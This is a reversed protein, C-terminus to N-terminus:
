YYKKFYFQLFFLFYMLYLNFGLINGIYNQECDYYFYLTYSKMTFCIIHQIIQFLTIYHIYNYLFCKPYAFYYYMPIHILCNLGMPIFSYPSIVQNINNYTLFATSMHHSYQLWTIKKRSLYLFLTDLWELYKSWLFLNVSYYAIKNNNYSSCILNNISSFKSEQYTGYTIGLFMFFSLISLNLNHIKRFKKILITDRPTFLRFSKVFYIYLIPSFTHIYSLM